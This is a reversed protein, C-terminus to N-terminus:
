DKYFLWKFLEQFNVKKGYMLIGVRYIRAAMWTFFIVTGILLVLSVLIQWAPVDFALRAPMVIPSFLPFMSSWVAISSHPARVSVMMIILAIIVPITIPVQLSQSEALDDGAASGVAAFLAAYLFYGGIFYLLFLPLILWWEIRKLEQIGMAVMSQVDDPDIVELGTAPMAEADIGFVLNAALSLVPIAVIWVLFQTLGVAGVGIIKGMMLQFPRVSSIMVEVIRNTKEEMVSRLIMMGYIFVAMYMIFGMLMGIAAGIATRLSSIERSKDVIPRPELVIKTRLGEIIRADLEQQVMKYDRIRTSIAEKIASEADLSLSQDSYYLLTHERSQMDRLPPVVLIGDFDGALVKPTLSDLPGSSFSFYVSAEDKLIRKFMDSEDLVAIRQKEDTEMTMIYGQFMFLVLFALPTGLTALLFSRKKVRSTYERQIIIWLKNM